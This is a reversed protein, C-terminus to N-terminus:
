SDFGFVLRVDDPAGLKELKPIWEDPLAWQYEVPVAKLEALTVWSHSHDGLDKGNREVDGILGSQHGWGGRHETRHDDCDFDEPLGRPKSVPQVDGDNRVDALLAFTAYSRPEWFSDGCEDYEVEEDLNLIVDEWVGDRCAQILLHIDCGM